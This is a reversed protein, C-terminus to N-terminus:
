DILGKDQLMMVAVERDSTGEEVMLNYVQMDAETWQGGLMELAEVIAPNQEAYDM